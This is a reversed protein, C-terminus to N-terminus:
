RDAGIKRLLAPYRPDSRLSRLLPDARLEVLSPVDWQVQDFLSFAADLRGLAAYALALNVRAREDGTEAQAELEALLSDAARQRGTQQRVFARAGPVGTFEPAERAAEELLQAADQYHAQAARVIGLYYLTLQFGSSLTLARRLEREAGNLDGRQLLIIGRTANAPLSLPDSTLAQQNQALAEDTRGLMLLLLTYYHHAWTLSRNQEIARQFAGEAADFELRSALVFGNAAHGEALQPDLALAHDAAIEARALAERTNCYRFNSSNVYAAALGAYATAFTPAREIAGEFFIVAQLIGQRSRQRWAHRGRLYLDYADPDVTTRSRGLSTGATTTREPYLAGVVARALEAQIAMIDRPERDYSESWLIAPDRVSVLHASVKLRDGVRHVTGEVVAAVGLSDAIAHRDLGQEKLALTVTLPAVRLGEVTSLASILEDTLGASLHAIASDGSVNTFPLVAISRDAFVGAAVRSQRIAQRPAELRGRSRAEQFASAVSTAIQPPRSTAPAPSAAERSTSPLAPEERLRAALAAVDPDPPSDLEERLLAGHVQACRLAAVREGTADLAGMLRLTTRASFPDATQLRRLWEIAAEPDGRDEAASALRELASAYRRALEDRQVSVWEEFEPAGPLHFGDLFPGGYLCVARELEGEEFASLFADIDSAIYSANLRLESTGMIADTSGLQRRAVHITQKLAGRAHETDSESWLCAAVRDRSVGQGRSAALLTLLALTKRQAGLTDLPVGDHELSVGGLTRLRLVTEVRARPNGDVRLV